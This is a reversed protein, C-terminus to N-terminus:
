EGLARMAERLRQVKAQDAEVAELAQELEAAANVLNALAAKARAIPNPPVIAAVQARIEATTTVGMDTEEHENNQHPAGATAPQQETARALAEEVIAVAARRDQHRQRELDEPFKVGIKRLGSRLNEYARNNSDNCSSRHFSYPTLSKDQPFVRVGDTTNRVIFGQDECLRAVQDFSLRKM